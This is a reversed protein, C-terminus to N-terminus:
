EICPEGIGDTRCFLTHFGMPLGMAFQNDNLLRLLLMPYPSYDFNECAPGNFTQRLFMVGDQYLDREWPPPYTLLYLGSCSIPPAIEYGSWLGNRAFSLYFDSSSEEGRWIGFIRPDPTCNLMLFMSSLFLIGILLFRSKQAFM